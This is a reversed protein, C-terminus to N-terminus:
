MHKQILTEIEPSSPRPADVSIIKGNKGFLVFRPITGVNIQKLLEDKDSKVLLFSNEINLIDDYEAMAKQWATNSKDISLFVFGVNPYKQMLKKESPFEERCPMCWSAWFDVLVLKGLHKKIINQLFVPAAKPQLDKNIADLFAQNKCNERFLDVTKKTVVIQVERNNLASDINSYLLYDIIKQNSFNKSVFEMKTYLDNKLGLKNMSKVVYNDLLVKYEESKLLEDAESFSKEIASFTSPNIVKNELENYKIMCWYMLTFYQYFEKSVKDNKYNIELLEQEKRYEHDFYKPMNSLLRIQKLGNYDSINESKGYKEFCENIFESESKRYKNFNCYYRILGKENIDFEITENPAAFILTNRFVQNCLLVTPYDIKMKLIRNNSNVVMPTRLMEISQCTLVINDESDGIYNITIKQSFSLTSILFLVIIKKITTM